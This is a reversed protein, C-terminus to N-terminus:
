VSFVASLHYPVLDQHYLKSQIDAIKFGVTHIIAVFIYGLGIKQFM